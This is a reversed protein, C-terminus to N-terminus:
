GSDTRRPPRPAALALDDVRLVEGDGVAGAWRLVARIRATPVM